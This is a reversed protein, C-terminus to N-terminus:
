LVSSLFPSPCSVPCLCLTLTLPLLKVPFLIVTLLCVTPSSNSSFL